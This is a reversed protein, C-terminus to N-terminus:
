GLHRDLNRSGLCKTVAQYGLHDPAEPLLLFFFLCCCFGGLKPFRLIHSNAWSLIHQKNPFAFYFEMQTWLQEPGESHVPSAHAESVTSM